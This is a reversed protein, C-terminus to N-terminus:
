MTTTASSISRVVGAQALRTHEEMDVEAFGSGDEDDDNPMPM